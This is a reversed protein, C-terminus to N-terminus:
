PCTGTSAAPEFVLVARETSLYARDRVPDYLVGRGKGSSSDYSALEALMSTDRVHVVQLAKHGSDAALFGVCRSPDMAVGLVSGSGEHYWPGPSSVAPVTPRLSFVVAEQVSGKLTGLLASTGTVAIAQADLTRDSLNYGPVAMVSLSGSGDIRYARLEYSDQSSAVYVGTGSVAIATVNGADDEADLLPISSGTGSIDYAYLENEAGVGSANAGVLLVRDTIALSRVRASGGINLSAVPAPANPDSIDFVQVEANADATAVYLRTGRVAVDYAAAGLSFSTALQTPSATDSVDIVYLGISNGATVFLASGAVAGRGFQPTGGPAFTGEVTPSRWDGRVTTGRWDTVDTSILVAGSRAYGRKWTTRADLKMWDAGSATLTLSTVYGGTLTLTGPSLSWAGSPGVRAGYTGAALSSFSGDRVARAAELARMGVATARIRDGAMITSEQGYLLTAGVASLFIAFVAIGILAEVLLFGPRAQGHAPRKVTRLPLLVACFFGARTPLTM